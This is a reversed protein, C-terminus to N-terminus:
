KCWNRFVSRGPRASPLKSTQRRARRLYLVLIRWIASCDHCACMTLLVIMVLFTGYPCADFCFRSVIREDTLGNVEGEQRKKYRYRLNRVHEYLPHERKPKCHGHEAAFESLSQIMEEWPVWGSKPQMDLGIENLRQLQRATLQSQPAGGDDQMLKKYERRQKAVWGKLRREDKTLSSDPGIFQMHGREEKYQQLQIFMSSWKVDESAADTVDTVKGMGNHTDRQRYGLSILNRVREESLPVPKGLFHKALFKKQERVWTWLEKDDEKDVDLTGHESKHAVLRDFMEEYSPGIELGIGRLKEVLRDTMGTGDHGQAFRRHKAIQAHCWGHLKKMRHSDKEDDIVDVSGDNDLKYQELM